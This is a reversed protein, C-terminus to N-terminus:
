TTEGGTISYGVVTVASSANNIMDTLVSAHGRDGGSFQVPGTWLMEVVERSEAARTEVASAAGLALAIASRPVDSDQLLFTVGDAAEGNIGALKGVMSPALSDDNMAALLAAMRSKPVLDLVTLISDVAKGRAMPSM